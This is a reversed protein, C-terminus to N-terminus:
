SGVATLNDVSSVGPVSWAARAADDREAWSRVSGRLTVTGDHTEARVHSADIDASREFTKRIKAEVDSSKVSPNVTTLNTVGRVGTLHRVAQSACDKQFQWEIHGELMLWGNEVTVVIADRPVLDNWALANIAAAAIEADTRRRFAPLEVAIESAIGKVGGVRKVATEAAIKESYNSVNGTLTVVGDKTAVGIKSADLSPDFALEEAVDEQLTLDTKM